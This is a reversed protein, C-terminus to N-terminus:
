TNKKDVIKKILKAPNGALISCDPFTGNVVSNAGVISNKGIYSGPLIVAGFGIFCNEGIYTQLSTMPKLCQPVEFNLQSHKIDTVCVNGTIVTNAGIVLKSGATCHFNQGVSVNEEFIISGLPGHVELRAGPMIRSKKKFTINKSGKLRIPKGFYGLFHWNKYILAYILRRLIWYVKM